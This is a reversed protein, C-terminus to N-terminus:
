ADAPHLEDMTRLRIVRVALYPVSGLFLGLAGTILAARLGFLEGILGGLLTGVPVAGFIVLRQVAAVRARLADPTLVQRVTVYNVTHISIGLGHAFLM